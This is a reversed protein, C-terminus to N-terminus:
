YKEFIKEIISNLEDLKKGNCKQNVEQIFKVADTEKPFKNKFENPTLSWVKGKPDLNGNSKLQYVFFGFVTKNSGDYGKDFTVCGIYGNSKEFVLTGLPKKLDKHNYVTEFNHPNPFVSTMNKYVELTKGTYPNKVEKAELIKIFKMKTGKILLM